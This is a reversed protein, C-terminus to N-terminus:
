CRILQCLFLCHIGLLCLFVNVIVRKPSLPYYICPLSPIASNWGYHGGKTTTVKLCITARQHQGRMIEAYLHIILFYYIFTM